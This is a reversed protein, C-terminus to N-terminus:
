DGHIPDACLVHAKVMKKELLTVIGIEQIIPMEPPMFSQDPHFNSLIEILKLAILIFLL